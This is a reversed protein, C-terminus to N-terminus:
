FVSETVSKKELIQRSELFVSQLFLESHNSRTNEIHQELVFNVTFFISLQM